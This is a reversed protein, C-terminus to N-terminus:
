YRIVLKQGDLIHNPDSLNNDAAIKAFQNGDGYVASAITSLNEGWQVIYTFEDCKVAKEQVKVADFQKQLNESELKTQQLENQANSLQEKLANYDKATVYKGTSFPFVLAVVFALIFLASMLIWLTKQKKQSVFAKQNKEILGIARLDTQCTPCTSTDETLGSTKCIPCEM